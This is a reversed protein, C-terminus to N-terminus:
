KLQISNVFDIHEQSMQVGTFNINLFVNQVDEDTANEGLEGYAVLHFDLFRSQAYDSLDDWTNGHIDKFENQVFGLIANLRQKGDVIDKYFAVKGSDVRNKVWYYERKRIIITGISINNYISEILLQKQELSWCFDRQYIVEEGKNNIIFPNWNLEEADLHKKTREFGISHLISYLNFNVMRLAVNWQYKPFPNVGVERPNKKYDCLPVIKNKGYEEIVISLDHHVVLVETTHSFAEKNQSGLGKVYVKEGVKVPEKLYQDIKDQKTM